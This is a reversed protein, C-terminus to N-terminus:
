ADGYDDSRFVYSPYEGSFTFLTQDSLTSEVVARASGGKPGVSVWQANGSGLVTCITILLTVSAIRRNM